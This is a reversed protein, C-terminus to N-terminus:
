KKTCDGLRKGQLTMKVEMVPGGPGANGKMTVTGDFTNGKYTGEGTGTMTMRDNTCQVTWSIRGGSRKQDVVKCDNQQQPVLDKKTVCRTFKMPPMRPMGPMNMQTTMEWRGERIDAKDDARLPAPLLVLLPLLAHTRM